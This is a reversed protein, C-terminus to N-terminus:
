YLSDTNKGSNPANKRPNVVNPTTSSRRSPTSPAPNNSRYGGGPARQISSDIGRGYLEDEDPWYPKTGPEPTGEDYEGEHVEPQQPTSPRPTSPRPAPTYSPQTARKTSAYIIIVLDKIRKVQEPLTQNHLATGTPRIREPNPLSNMLQVLYQVQIAYSVNEASPVKANVIGIIDGKADFLPGGSNGSQIPTSTQYSTPDGQYGSHSSIIGTTLKVEDGLIQTMPYGLVFCSEGVDALETRLSYPLTGFSTFSQDTIHLIALDHEEDTAAVEANYYHTAGSIVCRLQFSRAGDVVHYNTVVYGQNLAWGTGQWDADITPGDAYIMSPIALLLFTLIYILRKM